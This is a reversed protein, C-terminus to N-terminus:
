EEKSSDIDLGLIIEIVDEIAENYGTSWCDESYPKTGPVFEQRLKRILDETGMGM